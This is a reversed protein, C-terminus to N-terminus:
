VRIRSKSICITDETIGSEGAGCKRNALSYAMFSGVCSGSRVFRSIWTKVIGFEVDIM